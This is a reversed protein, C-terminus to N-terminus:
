DWFDDVNESLHAIQELWVQHSAPDRLYRIMEEADSTTLFNSYLRNTGKRYVCLQLQVQGPDQYTLQLRGENKTNIVPFQVYFPTFAATVPSNKEQHEALAWILM